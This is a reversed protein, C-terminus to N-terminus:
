LRFFTKKGEERKRAVQELESFSIAKGSSPSLKSTLTNAGVAEGDSCFGEVPLFIFPMDRKLIPGDCQAFHGYSTPNKTKVIANLKLGPM